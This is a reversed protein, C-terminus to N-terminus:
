FVIFQRKESKNWFPSIMITVFIFELPSHSPSTFPFFPINGNVWTFNKSSLESSPVYCSDLWQINVLQWNDILLASTFMPIRPFTGPPAANNIMNVLFWLFIHRNKTGSRRTYTALIFASTFNVTRKNQVQVAIEQFSSWNSWRNM